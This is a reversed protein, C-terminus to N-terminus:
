ENSQNDDSNSNNPPTETNTGGSENENGNPEDTDDGGIDPVDPIVNDVKVSIESGTSANNKFISYTSKVVFTAETGDVISTNFSNATTLGLSILTGDSSKVFIEYELTGMNEENYKVRSEYYKKAWRPFATEYYNLLYTDDIADPTKIPDWSLTVQSGLNSYTLNKVNPLQMFRTSMETPETGKRYYETSRLNDPTFPSALMVPNTGIEIDVTVIGSPRSWKSNKEMINPTLVRVIAKRAAWGENQTLHYTKDAPNPYGYWFAIAYDPSYSVQWVDAIAGPRLGPASISSTGTKSAVDTGPVSGVGIAGSTVAYRLMMNIMYATQESMAKEKTPSYTYTEGTDNYVIKTFSYPEIYYGGRAFTGYAASLKLPSIGTLAGIASSELIQGNHLEPTIGLNTIFEYKQKQTTAQFAQLAPINRSQALAYKATLAGYYQYDVNNIITGDSYTYVDDVVTTGTGWGAYEIAPGYDLIPKITSGPHRNTNTAYNFTRAGNKRNTGIATISGDKVSTVAIGCQVVDNAWKYVAPNKYLANIVDQKSAVMTSYITMSTVYPNQGTKAEVDEIVMNVFSQYELEYSNQELLMDKLKIARAAAAEEPTIYGHRVMLGLVLNRRAEAKDTYVYPDYASPAQFLGAITAAESLNLESASKGFYTQSAQEVGYSGSGLYAQNVYFEIIEQKTYTKEVKFVAMYIDTFKRIIGKIGHSATGNYTNKVVQMTLTSGGGADSQGMLQGMVAKTFRLLDIGNHQFFKSDETAVIADVLVDALQDFTVNERKEIGLEAIVNLESDYIVSSSAKYLKEVEFKPASTIIYIGFALACSVILILISLLIVLFWHHGSKKRKRKVTETSTVKNKVRKVKEKVVKKPTASKKKIMKSM